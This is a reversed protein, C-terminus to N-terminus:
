EGLMWKATLEANGTDPYGLELFFGDPLAAAALGQGLPLLVSSSDQKRYTKVYIHAERVGGDAVTFLAYARSEGLVPLGNVRVGYRITVSQGNDAVGQLEWEADGLTEKLSACLARTGEIWGLIGPQTHPALLNEGAAPNNYYIFGEPSVRCQRRFDVFSVAGDTDEYRSPTDPDMGLKRLFPAADSIMDATAAASLEPIDPLQEPLLTLPEPREYVGDREFAFYCAQGLGLEPLEPRAATDCVFSGGNEDEYFLRLAQEGACLALRRVNADLACEASNWAGLARLPIAGSFRLYVSESELAAAWDGSAAPEPTGASGLAEGLTRGLLQMAAEAALSDWLAGSRVGNHRQAIQVPQAAAPLQAKEWVSESPTESGAWGGPPFAELLAPEYAWTQWILFAACLSLVILLITKIREKMM